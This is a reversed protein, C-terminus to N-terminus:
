KPKLRDIVVYALRGAETAGVLADPQDHSLKFIDEVACQASRLGATTVMRRVTGRIVIRYSDKRFIDQVACQASRM